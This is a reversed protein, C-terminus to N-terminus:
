GSPHPAPPRRAVVCYRDDGPNRVVDIDVFGATRLDAVLDVRSFPSFAVTHSTREEQHGDRVVLTLELTVPDGFREPVRWDFHRTARLGDRIIVQPDDDRHNGREHLIQWDQADLIATGGRVLVGAFGRLAARRAETSPAHALSNGTCLLADFATGFREPLDVWACTAVPVEVGTATLRARCQDVMAASADTATVRFGRRHLSLADFGVGCAADLVRV